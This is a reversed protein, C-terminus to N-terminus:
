HREFVLDAHNYGKGAIVKAHGEKFILLYITFHM